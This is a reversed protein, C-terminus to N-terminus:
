NVNIRLLKGLKYSYYADVCAYKVQAPTLYKADWNSMTVCKPKELEEGIITEVLTKLGSRKFENHDFAQAALSAIDAECSTELDYDKYLKKTDGSIRVGTYIINPNSLANRLSRPICTAQYIQFILCSKSICLQLIGVPNQSSGRIFTPRWEIDLGVIKQHHHCPAQLHDKIWRDVVTRSSTVTAQVLRHHITVLYKQTKSSCCLEEITVGM